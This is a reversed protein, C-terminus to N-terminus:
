QDHAKESDIQTMKEMTAAFEFQDLDLYRMRQEMLTRFLKRSANLHNRVQSEPILFTEALEAYSPVDHDSLPQIDRAEFIQFQIMKGVSSLQERLEAVVLDILSRLWEIEFHDITDDLKCGFKQLEAEAVDFDLPSHDFGGGRKLAKANRLSNSAFRDACVKIYNRLSSLNQDFKSLTQSEALSMFFSQTLEKADDNCLNWKLRFRKYIPKWYLEIIAQLADAHDSQRNSNLKGLLTQNTRDFWSQGGISTEFRM